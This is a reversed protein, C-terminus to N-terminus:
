KFSSLKLEADKVAGIKSLTRSSLNFFGLFIGSWIQFYALM